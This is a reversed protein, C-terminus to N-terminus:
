QIAADAQKMVIIDNDYDQRCKTYKKNLMEFKGSKGPVIVSKAEASLLSKELDESIKGEKTIEDLLNSYQNELSSLKNM